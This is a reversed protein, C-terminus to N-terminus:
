SVIRWPDSLIGMAECIKAVCPSEENEVSTPNFSEESEPPFVFPRLVFYQYHYLCMVPACCSQCRNVERVVAAQQDIYLAKAQVLKNAMKAAANLKEVLELDGERHLVAVKRASRRTTRFVKENHNKYELTVTRVMSDQASIEVQVVRGVRWIPQGLVQEGGDKQFVVVDGVQLNPDSRLWKVPKAIFDSLKEQYWAKWWSEFVDNMRELMKSPKDVMCCGSLARRNSRGHILRNPTLLDLHDLDQYRSGLCIPLNNMENSVWSFATEYGLLDLKLGSFVTYFLKKVERISREVMGHFNHGGVPCPQFEVGVSHQASLTHAVDVWSVQMEKCARMLQSGEDPYLKQPHCFRAAFRTYAQLFASTDCKSMALVFVAGSAPDKFVVGWVKVTARHNHECQATFPGMLDVQCLTFAPAITVRSGHVKGMEVQQLKAKFRKCFPCSNRVEQALERGGIIYAVGLSERYTTAANLHHVTSWHTEVM